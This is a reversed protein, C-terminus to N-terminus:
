REARFFYEGSPVVLVVRGSEQRDPRVGRGNETISNPSGTPIHISASTNPPISVFLEFHGDAIRWDSKIRGRITDLTAKAFSIDGVPTPRIIIKKFGPGAPDVSIGALDHYFWEVIHGLMFHNQSVEPRADWSEVLSTAGKSLQYGYGPKSSQNNIDFIVDSRGGDALARLLYRYGVDGPTLANGRSQVDTVIADLVAQRHEPKALGMVLAISNSCQSGTAYQMREADFFRRNFADRVREGLSEYRGADAANNLLRAARALVTIDLYYFATATLAKPTLQAEGPPKPGVDCWDGLGHSVIHDKSTGGLYAVYRKMGGYHQRLLEMDGTWEYQQWPVLVYASGWEPSDRFGGSFVTYEPAIDPILGNGLQSDAMDTMAKSFLRALDFEYRLSPGNLHYEELWGLRERHPCDTLVSMMNSRQAWRVLSHIRNFLDNSCEFSGIAASSSHVVVGELSEITPLESTPSRREVQLYRSGHYFFKPLWTESGCGALVYEWHADGGGCSRRDVSGDANLLEAPIVKVSSGAPGRLKLRPILSVNQGLDYVSVDPKLRVVRVPTLTEIARMPAASQSYGRLKGGPGGVRAAKPWASDDFDPMDWGPEDLRADYDEGGYVCSFTIPSAHARWTEDTTVFDTSGDAYDIRLHAIARLGGFSGTFKAYRGGRVNFMGNGLLIGVANAGTRIQATVDYTDYLCTKDYKSWGPALLDQGIRQGNVSLEYQGLGCIHATALLVGPRVAFRRRLLVSNLSSDAAGIWSARWDGPGLLGMTWSAVGSWASPKGKQNWVRVKWFVQGSSKLARGGYEVSVSQDSRVKGSDWMDGCDASLVDRSSAVLIRYASQSQAAEESQLAWTLRPRLVDIGRPDEGLECRLQGPKLPGMSGRACNAVVALGIVIVPWAHSM